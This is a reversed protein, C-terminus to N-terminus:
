SCVLLGRMGYFSFREWFETRFLTSFGKPYGLFATYESAPAHEGAAPNQRTTM